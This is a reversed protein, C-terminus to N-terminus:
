SCGIINKEQLMDANTDAFQLIQYFNLNHETRIMSHGILIIIQIKFLILDV